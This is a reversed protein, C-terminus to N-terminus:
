EPNTASEQLELDIYDDLHCKEFLKMLTQNVYVRLRGKKKDIESKTKVVVGIGFSDIYDVGSLDIIIDTAGKDIIQDIQRQLSKANSIILDGFACLQEAEENKQHKIILKEMNM